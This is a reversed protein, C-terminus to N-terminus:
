DRKLRMIVVDIAWGYITCIVVVTHEYSWQYHGRSKKGCTKLIVFRKQDQMKNSITYTIHSALYCGCNWYCNFILLSFETLSVHSRIEKELKFYLASLLQNLNFELLFCFLFASSTSWLLVSFLLLSVQYYFYINQMKSTTHFSHQQLGLTSLM